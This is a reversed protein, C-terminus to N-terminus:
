PSQNGTLSHDDRLRPDRGAGGGGGGGGDGSSGTKGPNRRDQQRRATAATAPTATAAAAPHRPPRSRPIRSRVPVAGAVTSAGEGGGGGNAISRAAGRSRRRTSVIMGGSGGGGGGCHLVTGADCGCGIRRDHRAHTIAGGSSCRSRVAVPVAQVASPAAAPRAAAAAACRMSRRPRPARSVAPRATTATAAMSRRRRRLQRGCRRRRRHHVCAAHRPMCGGRERRRRAAVALAHSSVDIVAGAAVSLTDGALLVLPRAAPRGLFTGTVVISAATIVCADLPPMAPPCRQVTQVRSRQATDITGSLTLARSPAAM